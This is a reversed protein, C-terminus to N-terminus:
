MMKLINLLITQIMTIICCMSQKTPLECTDHVQLQLTRGDKLKCLYVKGDNEKNVTDQYKM